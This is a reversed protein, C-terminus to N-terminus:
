VTVYIDHSVMSKKGSHVQKKCITNSICSFCSIFTACYKSEINVIFVFGKLTGLLLINFM